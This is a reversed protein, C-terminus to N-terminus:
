VLALAYTTERASNRIDKDLAYGDTPKVFIEDTVSGATDEVYEHWGEPIHYEFVKYKIKRGNYDIEKCCM